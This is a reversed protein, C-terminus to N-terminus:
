SRDRGRGHDRNRREEEQARWQRGPQQQRAHAQPAPTAPAKAAPMPQRAQRSQPSLVQSDHLDRGPPRQYRPAPAPAPAVQIQVPANSNPAPVPSILPRQSTVAPPQAPAALQRRVGPDRYEVGRRHYPDHQWGARDVFVPRRIVVPPAWRFPARRYYVVLPDYYPVYVVQPNAPYIAIAPGQRQVVIESNSQLNGAAQARLRLQQVTEMVYPQQGLYADGVSRTWDLNEDMWQVIQPFAVLSKVSPDWDAGQVAQVAADGQLGPNARTWRAAEVVEVPYTSAMLVQSLLPDPYLAVPALMQELEAQSYSKQVQSFAVPTAIFFALLVAFVRKM